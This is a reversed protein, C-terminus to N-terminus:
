RGAEIQIHYTRGYDGQMAGNNKHIFILFCVTILMQAIIVSMMLRKHQQLMKALFIYSLPFACILYHQYITTGSLTMFVGLGLLVAFLYFKTQSMGTFFQKIFNKQRFTHYIKSIYATIKSLLLIGIAVLFIHVIAIIYTPIGLVIPEKIFMWFDKRLSYYINLGLSDLFWYIYFNFQFIHWFSIKSAQPNNILFSIWPVLSISGIISGVLWYVWRIKIKNYHDHVLTFVFLGLALFFGSMHIQGILAGALGWIFAGWGKNRYSNSFILLFSFFPLLDQAWIKRSFLVALPSVAALTIGFLWINREKAEIKQFIFFLFCLISIVNIVQVVRDMAIPNNTFAAILAFVGVSMGPNVIGGGSEMGVKPFAGMNISEHAMTYMQNEDGKWEMDSTWILRMFLGLAIIIYFYYEKKMGDMM